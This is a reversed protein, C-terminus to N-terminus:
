QRLTYGKRAMCQILVQQRLRANTDVSYTSPAVGGVTNAVCSGGICDVYTTGPYGPLVETRMNNPVKNLAEVQCDTLDGQGAGPPVGPKDFLLPAACATLATFMGIVAWIRMTGLVQRGGAEDKHM